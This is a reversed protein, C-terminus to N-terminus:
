PGSQKKRQRKGVFDNMRFSQQIADHEACNFCDFFENLPMFAIDKGVEQPCLKKSQDEKIFIIIFLM